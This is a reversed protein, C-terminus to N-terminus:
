QSQEILYKSEEESSLKFNYSNKIILKLPIKTLVFRQKDM